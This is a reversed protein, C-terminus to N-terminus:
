HERIIGPLFILPGELVPRHITVDHSHSDTLGNSGTVTLTVRYDGAGYFGHSPNQEPSTADDGFDWHYILNDGGSRSSFQIVCDAPCEWQDATFDAYPEVKIYDHKTVAATNDADDGATHTVTFKGNSEYTHSVTGPQQLETSDGFDWHSYSFALTPTFNVALPLPGAIPDATFRADIAVEVSHSKTSSNWPSHVTLTVERTGSQTYTHTPNQATSIAGDGFDWRWDSVHGTSKDQFQVTLPAFGSQPSFTFEAVPPKNITFSDSRGFDESNNINFAILDLSGDGNIDAVAIGGGRDDGGFWDPIGQPDTWSSALGTDPDVDWGIRYYGHNGGSPNDIHFAILDPKDNGNIDGVSIGGGQSSGGYWGPIQHPGTWSSAQGTVSDM